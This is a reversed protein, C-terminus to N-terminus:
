ATVPADSWTWSGGSTRTAFRRLVLTPEGDVDPEIRAEVLLVTGLHVERVAHDRDLVHLKQHDEPTWLTLRGPDDGTRAAVRVLRGYLFAVNFTVGLSFPSPSASPLPPTDLPM